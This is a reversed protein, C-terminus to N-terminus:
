KAGQTLRHIARLRDRVAIEGAADLGPIGRKRSAPLLTRCTNCFAGSLTRIGSGRYLTVCQATTAQM